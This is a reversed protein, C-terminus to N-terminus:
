FYYSCSHVTTDILLRIDTQILEPTVNRKNKMEERRAIEEPHDRPHTHKRIDSLGIIIDNEGLAELLYTAFQQLDEEKNMDYVTDITKNLM